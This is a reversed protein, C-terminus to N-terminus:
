RHDAGFFLGELNPGIAADLRAGEAQQGRREAVFRQMKEAFPEGNDDAPPVGLDRDPTLVHDHERTEELSTRRRFGPQDKYGNAEGCWRHNTDAIRAIDSGVLERKPATLWAASSVPMSSYCREAGTGCSPAGRNHALFWLCAPIQTSYFLQGPLAVMCDMLDAEVLHRRIEDEGSQNSSISGNALM